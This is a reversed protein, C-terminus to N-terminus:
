GFFFFYKHGASSLVPSSWLDSHLIDFPLSTSSLSPVFPLKIHKGLVCSGCISSSSHKICDIIKNKRLVDLISSGPHGLWDHWIKTTVAAFTSPIAQDNHFASFPYLDGRSNCRMIAEGDSLRASSTMHSTAGTDMYWAPDPQQLSMTHM